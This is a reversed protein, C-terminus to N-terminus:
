TVTSGGGKATDQFTFTPYSPGLPSDIPIRGSRSASLRRLLLYSPAKPFSECQPFLPMPFVRQRQYNTYHSLLSSRFPPSGFGFTHPLGGNAIAQLAKGMPLSPNGFLVGSHHRGFPEVVHLGRMALSLPTAHHDSQGHCIIEFVDGIDGGVLVGRVFKSAAVGIEIVFEVLTQPQQPREAMRLDGPLPRERALARLVISLPSICHRAQQRVVGHM